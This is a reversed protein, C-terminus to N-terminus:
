ARSGAQALMQMLGTNIYYNERGTKVKSMVKQEVLKDLYGNVTPRSGIGADLLTQVKVYPYSFMLNNLDHAPMKQSLRKLVELNQEKAELIQDIFRCTTQATERVATLMFELWPGWAAQETVLRLGTYYAAKHHIIHSSHYLVPQTLLGEYILYLVNLIRGTRGNGDAFPHIAEFQYHMMAMKLLPDLESDTNLFREWEAMKEPITDPDPPYYITEKTRSNAVKTGPLTRFGLGQVGHLKQMIRIAM